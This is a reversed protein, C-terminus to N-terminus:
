WDPRVMAKPTAAPTAAAKAGWRTMKPPCATLSPNEPKTVTTTQAPSTSEARSPRPHSVVRLM